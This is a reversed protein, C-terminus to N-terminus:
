ALAPILLNSKWLEQTELDAEYLGFRVRSKHNGHTVNRSELMMVMKRSSQRDGFCYNLRTTGIAQVIICTTRFPSPFEM